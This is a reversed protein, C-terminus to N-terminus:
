NRTASAVRGKNKGRGGSTLQVRPQAAKIEVRICVDGREKCFEWGAGEPATDKAHHYKAEERTLWTGIYFGIEPNFVAWMYEVKSPDKAM